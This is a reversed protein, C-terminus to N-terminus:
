CANKGVIVTEEEKQYYDSKRKINPSAGMSSLAKAIDECGVGKFGDTDITQTGDNKIDITITKNLQAM